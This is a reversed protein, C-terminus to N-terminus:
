LCLDRWLYLREQLYSLYSHIGLAGPQATYAPTWVLSMSSIPAKRDAARACDGPASGPPGGGNSMAM